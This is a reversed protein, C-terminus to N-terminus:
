CGRSCIKCAVHLPTSVLRHLDAPGCDNRGHRVEGSEEEETRTASSIESSLLYPCWTTSVRRSQVHVSHRPRNSSSSEVVKSIFSSKPTLSGCRVVPGEWVGELMQPHLHSRLHGGCLDLQVSVAIHRDLGLGDGCAAGDPFSGPSFQFWCVCKWDRPFMQPQFRQDSLWMSIYFCSFFYFFRKSNWEAATSLSEKFIHSFWM